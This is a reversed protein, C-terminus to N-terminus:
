KAPAVVLIQGAMEPRHMTCVFPFLGERRFTFVRATKRLPPLKFQTLVANQDDMLMFDHEDDAQLNWFTILTPQDRRVIITEPSFAYAEGFAAVTEKPGTEKIAIAQAMVVISASAQGHEAVTVAPRHPHLAPAQKCAPILLFLVLVYRHM